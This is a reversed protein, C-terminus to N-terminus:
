EVKADITHTQLKTLRKTRYPTTVVKQVIRIYLEYIAIFILWGFSYTSYLQNIPVMM